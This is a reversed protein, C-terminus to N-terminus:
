STAHTHPKFARLVCGVVNTNIFKSTPSTYMNGFGITILGGCSKCSSDILQLASFINITRLGWVVGHSKM